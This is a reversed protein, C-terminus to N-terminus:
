DDFVAGSRVHLAYTLEDTSIGSNTLSPVETLLDPKLTTTGPVYTLLMAMTNQILNISFYDYSDATDFTIEDDTTGVVLVKAAPSTPRTEIYVGIGALVLIIVAVLAWVMRSKKAPAEAAPVDTAM